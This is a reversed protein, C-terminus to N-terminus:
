RVFFERRGFRDHMHLHEHPMRIADMAGFGLRYGFGAGIGSSSVLGADHRGFPIRSGYYSSSGHIGDFEGLHGFRSGSFRARSSGMNLGAALSGAFGDIGAFAGLGITRKSRGPMEVDGVPSGAERSDPLFQEQPMSAQDLAENSLELPASSVSSLIFWFPLLMMASKMTVVAAFTSGSLSTFSTLTPLISPSTTTIVDRQRCPVATEM